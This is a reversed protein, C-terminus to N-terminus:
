VGEKQIINIALQVTRMGKFYLDDDEYVTLYMGDKDLKLDGSVVVDISSTKTKISQRLIKLYDLYNESVKTFFSETLFVNLYFGEHELVLTVKEKLLKIDSLFGIANITKGVTRENIGSVLMRPIRIKGKVMDETVSSGVLNDDRVLQVKLRPKELTDSSKKSTIRKINKTKKQKIPKDEFLKKRAQLARNKKERANLKYMIVGSSHVLLEENTENRYYECTDLHKSGNRRKLYAKKIGAPYYTLPCNCNPCVLNKLRDDTIEFKEIDELSYLVDSYSLKCMNIISNM